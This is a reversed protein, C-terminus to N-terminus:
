ELEENNCNRVIKSRNDHECVNCSKEDNWMMCESCVDCALRLERQDVM